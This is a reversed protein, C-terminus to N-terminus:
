DEFSSCDLTSLKCILSALYLDLQKSQSFTPKTCCEFVNTTTRTIEVPPELLLTNLQQQRLTFEITECPLTFDESHNHHHLTFCLAFFPSLVQQEDRHRKGSQSLLLILLASSSSLMLVVFNDCCSSRYVCHLNM